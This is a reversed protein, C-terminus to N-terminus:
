VVSDIYIFVSKIIFRNVILLLCLFKFGINVVCCINKFLVFNKIISLINCVSMIDILFKNIRFVFILDGINNM